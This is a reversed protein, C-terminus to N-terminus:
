STSTGDARPTDDYYRSGYSPEQEMPVDNLVVGLIRSGVQRLQDLTKLVLERNAKGRRVVMIVGDAERALALADSVVAAPPTDLIIIPYAARLRLLLRELEPASLLENPYEVRAGRPLLHLRPVRTRRVFREPEDQDVLAEVLGTGEPLGFLTHLTPRRLDADVLLVNAGLQSFAVAIGIAAHTKGEEELCSTVLLRRSPGQGPYTQLVARIGRLAEAQRSRPHDFAYLACEPGMASEVVTPIVGLLPMQLDNEVDLTTLIQDNMRHRLFALGLGGGTGIFLAVALNLPLNPSAPKTPPVAKDVVRVDNLQSQAQLDVEAGRKGLSTYVGRAREEEAKLEDFQTKLKQKDLLEAKVKELEATIEAEQGNLTTVQSREGEVNRKVEEAILAEVRKIHEVAQQHEPHQAGYKALIEAAKTDITAKETAMTQLAPDSFMGALVEYKGARLLREHEHLQGELMVRRATTDGLATQLSAIRTTIGDVKEDIDAVDHESKFAMVKASAAEVAEHYGGSQGDLWKQTERAADTRAELNVKCYEDAVLNALLAAKEPDHHLVTIEVLQTDERPGAGLVRGLEEIGADGEDLDTNGRKRYAKVVQERVTRSLVIQIQTRARDRTEMYGGDDTKVVADVDVERGARPMLQIVAVAQYKKPTLLSGMLTFLVVGGLFAGVLKREQLLIQWLVALTPGRRPRQAAPDNV